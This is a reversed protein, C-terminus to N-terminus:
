LKLFISRSRKNGYQMDLFYQGPHLQRVPLTFSNTGQIGNELRTMVPIGQSTYISLRIRESHDLQLRFNLEGVAPNPFTYVTGILSDVNSFAPLYISNCYQQNCGAVTVINLCVVYYGSDSAWYVPNVQDSAFSDQPNRVNYIMWHQSQITQNGIPTLIIQAGANGLTTLWTFGATCSDIASGDVQVEHRVSDFCHSLTDSIMLTVTYTGPLNYTHVPSREVSTVRPNAADFIWRYKMNDSSPTAFFHIQKPDSTSANATFSAQLNCNSTDVISISRCDSSTCGESTTISLCISYTGSEFSYNMSNSTSVVQENITWSYSQITGGQADSVSFFHYQNFLFSDVSQTFAAHCTVPFNIVLSQTISDVCTNFSDITIHRVQYTGPSIYNHEVQAGNGFTNDGFYWSHFLQSRTDTAQFVVKGLSVSYTFAPDCQAKVEQRALCLLLCALILKKM